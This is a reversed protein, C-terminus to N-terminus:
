YGAGPLIVVEVRRNRAKGEATLNTAIPQDEGRGFTQIRTYPVGSNLLVQAVAEARRSSLTRNYSAEGDSDTHGVIQVTSNPYAQLNGALARLDGQLDSRLTASDSAFLIDQPLTVILRDGTNQILVNQNGMDRRLDAEQKDLINGGVAGIAAGIAAGRLAAGTRDDKNTTLIGTMAGVAGGIIAGNKTKRYPDNPDVRGPDTCAGLFLAASTALLIIPKTHM